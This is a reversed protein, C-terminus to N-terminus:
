KHLTHYSWYSITLDMESVRPVESSKLHHSVSSLDMGWLFCPLRQMERGKRGSSPTDSHDFPHCAREARCLTCLETWITSELLVLYLLHQPCPEQWPMLTLCWLLQLSTKRMHQLALASVWCSSIAERQESFTGPAAADTLFYNTKHKLDLLLNM